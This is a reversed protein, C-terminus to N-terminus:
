PILWDSGAVLRPGEPDAFQVIYGGKSAFRQGTAIALHPYYGTIVRRELMQQLQEVLYEPVFTDVMHSLVESLLGCALYTDTQVREDIVEIKRLHFWGLPYDVRVRRRDPLDYPYAIRTLERWQAPLPSRELGGMTGSMFVAAHRSPVEGLRAVDSPRLWLVLADADAATKLARDLDGAAVAAPLTVDHVTAHGKLADRLAKAGDQGADGTRYIQAITKTPHGTDGGQVLRSGILAGELLVGGSFYLSYFDHSDGAPVEVNPFLCPVGRHECFDHVPRWERGGLGSLVAFVPEKAMRENLQAEWTSSPGTLEWVHLRWQRVAHYMTIAGHNSRLRPAHYRQLANRTDFYQEVVELVAKRVAPDADPTVITAFHLETESVGPARRPDISRLYAIMAKMDTDSLDYRPMLYGFPKGDAGIGERIARALTEDTYPERNPRLSEVYPLESDEIRTVRPHFLYIGAVPPVYNLGEKAGLGSRLHCNVCAADAGTTVMGNGRRGEAPKGSALMGTRYLTRGAAILAEDAQASGSAGALRHGHRQTAGEAGVASASGTVWLAASFLFIAAARL